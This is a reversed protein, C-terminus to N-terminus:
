LLAVERENRWELEFQAPSKQNNTSHKRRRNYYVEIYNFLAQEAEIVNKFKSKGFRDKIAFSHILQTDISGNEIIDSLISFTDNFKQEELILFRLKGYDIRVDTSFGYM